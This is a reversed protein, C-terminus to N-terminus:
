KGSIHLAYIEQTGVDRTLLLSDDPAVGIWSMGGLSPDSVRRLNKLSTIVETTRDTLRARMALPSEPVERVFYMYKSDPSIMYNTIPGDALVSWKQTTRDFSYLKDQEGAAVIMRPTPCFAGAKSQSGPVPSVRGNEIDLTALQVSDLNWSKKGPLQISILLSKGDFSWASSQNGAIMFRADGGSMEVVYTGSGRGPMFGLFEVQRADPSIHPFYVKMPPFTLQLSDSGNARARWLDHTPYSLYILWKGDQSYMVDTASIGDLIPLFQKSIFDYRALEGRDQLGLAYITKGDRSPLPATYSFPGATLRSPMGRSNMAFIARRESIQWLDIEHSEPREFIFFNGDSTWKGGWGPSAGQLPHPQKGDSGVEWISPHGADDTSTFRVRRGDPSVSLEREIGTWVPSDYIKRPSSGDIQAIYISSGVAYTLREGDPFLAANDAKVIKRLQGAPLPLTGIFTENQVNGYRILLASADPTIDLAAPDVIGSTLPATDGGSLSVQAIGLTGSRREQFYLRAGDSAMPAFTPKPQGDHTLQVVSEVELIGTTRHWSVFVISISMLLVVLTAWALTSKWSQGLRKMGAVQASAVAQLPASETHRKLRQLDTRTDAAHQYRLNRDKELCKNIIEELKPPLDPNLRLAPTPTGDLIAKFIVGSSEGHFPLKGTAMEYLVAGFSFLDTRADLEKVRVQEPSMYAITGIATGPSTLHEELTVTSAAIAGAEGLKSPVPTVKALGFDLVKAHGRKTVFINAPKIDRHVIGASHAADLADAIEIGLSLVEEIDMPKGGIRHKLTLGELYEMAIFSQAEHKGIEYITCINPHNLASAARAERRFRELAQPDQALDEPLFKLAVFRGLETDEAKYVVGMGGGGLKEIIRYHSITQGIM